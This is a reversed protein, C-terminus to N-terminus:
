SQSQLPRMLFVTFHILHEIPANCPNLKACQTTKSLTSYSPPSTVKLEKIATESSQAEEQKKM